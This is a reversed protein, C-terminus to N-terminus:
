MGPWIVSGHSPATVRLRSESGHSPATVQLWSESGHSPTTVRVSRVEAPPPDREPGLRRRGGGGGGAGPALVDVGAAGATVCILSESLHSPYTVRIFSESLHSPYTVRRLLSRCEAAMRTIEPPTMEFLGARQARTAGVCM